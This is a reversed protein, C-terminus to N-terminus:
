KEALETMSTQHQSQKKEKPKQKDSQEKKKLPQCKKM